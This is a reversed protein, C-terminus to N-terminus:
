LRQCRLFLLACLVPGFHFIALTTSGVLQQERTDNLTIKFKIILRCRVAYSERTRKYEWEYFFVRPQHLFFPTLNHLLRRTAWDVWNERQSADVNVYM